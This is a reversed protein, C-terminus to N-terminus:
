PLLEERLAKLLHNPINEEDAKGYITLLWIEGERRKWYYIVRVGGRKGRGAASWRLKRVGGTGPVVAGADPRLTLAWELAAYEEEDLYEYIWRSFITSDIFIM